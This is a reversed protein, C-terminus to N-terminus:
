VLAVVLPGKNAAATFPLNRRVHRTLVSYRNRSQVGPGRGLRSVLGAHSDALPNLFDETPNLRHTPQPASAVASPLACLGPCVKHRPGIVQKRHPPPCGFSRGPLWSSSTGPRPRRRPRRPVRSRPLM